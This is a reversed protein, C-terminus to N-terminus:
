RIMLSPDADINLSTILINKVNVVCLHDHLVNKIPLIRNIKGIILSLYFYNRLPLLVGVSFCLSFSKKLRESM